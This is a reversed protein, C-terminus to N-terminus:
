WELVELLEPVERLLIGFLEFPQLLDVLSRATVVGAAGTRGRVGGKLLQAVLAIEEPKEVQDNVEDGRWPIAGTLENPLVEALIDMLAHLRSELEEFGEKRYDRNAVRIKQTTALSPKNSM